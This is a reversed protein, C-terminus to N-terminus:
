SPKRALWPPERYGVIDIGLRAILPLLIELVIHQHGTNRLAKQTATRPCHKTIM